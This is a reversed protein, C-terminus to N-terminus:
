PVPPGAYLKGDRYPWGNATCGKLGLVQKQMVPAPAGAAPCAENGKGLERGVAYNIEYARYEDLPAGYGPIATLWRTLSIVLQGPLRCSSYRATHVGGVACLKESTAETALLITFQADKDVQQFRVGGATWGRPDALIRDVAGAYGDADQGTGDEVGVRYKMPGATGSGLVHDTTPAYTFTDPGDLPFSPAASSPAATTARRPGAAPSRAGTRHVYALAVVALLGAVALIGALVLMRQRRRRRRALLARTRPGQAVVM